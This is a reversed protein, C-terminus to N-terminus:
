LDEKRMRKELASEMERVKAEDLPDPGEEAKDTKEAFLLALHRIEEDIKGKEKELATQIAMLGAMYHANGKTGTEFTEAVGTIIFRMEDIIEKGEGEIRIQKQGNELKTIEIM